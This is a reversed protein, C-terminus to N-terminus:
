LCNRNVKGWQYCVRISGPGLGPDLHNQNGFAMAVAPVLACTLLLPHIMKQENKHVEPKRLVSGPFPIQMNKLLLCVTM